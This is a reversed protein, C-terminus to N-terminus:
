GVMYTGLGVVYGTKRPRTLEKAESMRKRKQKPTPDEHGNITMMMEQCKSLMLTYTVGDTIGTMGIAALTTCIERTSLTAPADPSIFKEIAQMVAMTPKRMFKFMECVLMHWLTVVVVDSIAVPSFYFRVPIALLLQDTCLAPSVGGAARSLKKTYAQLVIDLMVDINLQQRTQFVDEMEQQSYLVFVEVYEDTIEAIDQALEKQAEVNEFQLRHNEPIKIDRSLVYFAHTTFIDLAHITVAYTKTLRM